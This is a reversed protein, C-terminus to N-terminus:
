GRVVHPQVPPPPQERLRLEAGLCAFVANPTNIPTKRFQDTHCRLAATAIFHAARSSNSTGTSRSSAIRTCFVAHSVIMPSEGWRRPLCRRTVSSTLTCLVVQDSLKLAAQFRFILLVDSCQLLLSLIYVFQQLVHCFPSWHEKHKNHLNQGM